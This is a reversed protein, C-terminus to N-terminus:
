DLKKLGGNLKCFRKVICILWTKNLFLFDAKMFGGNPWGKGIVCEALFFDGNVVNQDIM